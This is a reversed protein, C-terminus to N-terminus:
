FDNDESMLQQILHSVSTSFELILVKQKTTTNLQKLFELSVGISWLAKM